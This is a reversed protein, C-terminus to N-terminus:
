KTPATAATPNADRSAVVDFATEAPSGIPPVVVFVVDAIEGDGAGDGSGPAVWGSAAGREVAPEPALLPAAVGGLAPDVVAEAVEATPRAACAAVDAVFAADEAPEDNGSGVFVSAEVVPVAPEV